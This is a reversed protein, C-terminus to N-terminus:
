ERVLGVNRRVELRLYELYDIAKDINEEMDGKQSLRFLYKIANNYYWTEHRTLKHKDSLARILDSCEVDAWHPEGSYNRVRCYVRYYDRM